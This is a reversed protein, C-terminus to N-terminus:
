LVTSPAFNSTFLKLFKGKYSFFTWAMLLLGIASLGLKVYVEQKFRAESDLKILYAQEELIREEEERVKAPHRVRELLIPDVKAAIDEKKASRKYAKSDDYDESDDGFDLNRPELKLIGQKSEM